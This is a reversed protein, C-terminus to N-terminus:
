VAAATTRATSAIVRAVGALSTKTGKQRESRGVTLDGVGRRRAAVGVQVRGSADRGVRDFGAAIVPDQWILTLQRYGWNVAVAFGLLRLVDRPTTFVRVYKTMMTVGLTTSIMGFLQTALFVTAVGQPSAWGAM